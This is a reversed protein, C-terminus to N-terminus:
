KGKKHSQAAPQKPPKVDLPYNKKNQAKVYPNKVMSALEKDALAKLNIRLVKKLDKREDKSQLLIDARIYADKTELKVNDPSM